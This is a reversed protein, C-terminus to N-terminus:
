QIIAQVALSHDDLVLTQTSDYVRARAKVTYTGPGVNTRTRVFANSEWATAAGDGPSDFASFNGESPAM